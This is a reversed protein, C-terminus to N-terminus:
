ELFAYLKPLVSKMPHEYFIIFMSVLRLEGSFVLRLWPVTQAMWLQIGEHNISRFCLCTGREAIGLIGSQSFAQLIGLNRKRRSPSFPTDRSQWHAAGPLEYDGRNLVFVVGRSTSSWLNQTVDRDHAVTLWPTWRRRSEHEEATFRFLIM